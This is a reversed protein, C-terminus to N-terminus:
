EIDVVVKVVDSEQGFPEDDKMYRMKYHRTESQGEVQNPRTDEWPSRGDTGVETFNNGDYSAFVFVGQFGRKVWDIEVLEPFVTVNTITPATTAPDPETAFQRIGLTEGDDEDWDELRTIRQLERKMDVEANHLETNKAATSGQATQADDFATQIVLPINTNHTQIATLTAPNVGYKAGIAGDLHGLINDYYPGIQGEQNPYFIAVRKNHPM